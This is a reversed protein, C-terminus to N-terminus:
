NINTIKFLACLFTKEISCVGTALLLLLVIVANGSGKETKAM